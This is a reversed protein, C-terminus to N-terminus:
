KKLIFAYVSHAKSSMLPCNTVSLIVYDHDIQLSLVTLSTQDEQDM